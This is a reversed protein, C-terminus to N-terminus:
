EKRPDITKVASAFQGYTGTCQKLAEEASTGGNILEMMPGLRVFEYGIIEDNKDLALKTVYGEAMELYRPGKKKTSYMTATVSRKGKGLDELGAGVPLGGESFATQSRGYVIQLFIERMAVNIADCVLDSNLAELITKGSLIEAAMAASHTMGTCGVTEILAEEIIGDKINLTLKCAGQQPACWGVGHTLGSIDKIEKAQVWRGEEPIPAPGNKAGKAVCYMEKVEPSYEM